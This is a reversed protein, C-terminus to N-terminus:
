YVNDIDTKDCLNSYICHSCKNPNTVIPNAPNYEKFQKIFNILEQKNEYTPIDVYTMKNTSIEYFAIQSIDYEMEIMCFYQAWLQYIQGRFIRKLQFKREILLKRDQKYLDIKGMIGLEESYIPLATLDSSKTSYSKNDICLHALKGKTQPTAHFLDEDVEM